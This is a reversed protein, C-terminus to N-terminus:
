GQHPDPNLSYFRPTYVWVGGDARKILRTASSGVIVCTRMDVQKPHVEGLSTVTLTEGDRDIDRGLIVPTQPARTELLLQFARGLQWPRAKSIPNYLGIVFDAQAALSLRKEIVEWPKLNDSLSIICFDHGLPAGARMAVSQAATVGPVIVLDVRRWRDDTANDLAELVASAMAFVGPDGSSVIAVDEGQAALAFAHAARDLEVRNDSGHLQQDSRFPGALRVYTEYGIIHSAKELADRAAPVMLDRSGPGLGVVYLRGARKGASSPSDPGSEPEM